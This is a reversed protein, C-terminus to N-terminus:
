ILSEFGPCVKCHSSGTSDDRFVCYLIYRTESAVIRKSVIEVHKYREFISLM